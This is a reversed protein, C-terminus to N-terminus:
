HAGESVIRALRDVLQESRVDGRSSDDAQDLAPELICPLTVSLVVQGIGEELVLLGRPLIESLSTWVKHSFPKQYDRRTAALTQRSWIRGYM